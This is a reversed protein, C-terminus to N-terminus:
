VNFRFHMVDGDQVEYNKGESRLKGAERAGHEGHYKIFDDFSVVEARIFGKAFDTHITGAAEKAKAGKKITWARVEKPGATFFTQLDLLEYAAKILRNLGSEQLGMEALFMPKEEDPLQAIEAELTACIPVVLSNENKALTEM